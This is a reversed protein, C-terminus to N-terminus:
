TAHVRSRADCGDTTHAADAPVHETSIVEYSIRIFAASRSACRHCVNNEVLSVLDFDSASTVSM